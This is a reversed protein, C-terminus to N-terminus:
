KGDEKGGEGEAPRAVALVWHHFLRRALAQIEEATVAEIKEAYNRKFDHGLGLLEDLSDSRAQEQNTQNYVEQVTIAIRKATELEEPTVLDTKLREMERHLIAIVQDEKDVPCQTVIYFTGAGVGMWPTAHVTYVLKERGRLADHLWGGPYYVGSTVADIVRLAWQDESEISVGPFGLVIAAQTKQNTKVKTVNEAPAEHRPIPPRIVERPPFADPGLLAEVKARAAAHDCDGYIGLVLNGPVIWREHADLLDQRGLREVVEKTGNPHLRYPHGAFYNARFLLEVEGQWDEEMRDIAQVALKRERALEQEPFTPHLLCDALVELAQTVDRDLVEISIRLYPNGALGSIEGGRSEITEAIEEASRSATGALLMKALLNSVGNTGEDEYLVGGKFYAEIAVFKKGPNKRSLLTLGNALITKEVPQAPEARAAVGGEPLPTEGKPRLLAVTLNREDFYAAAIRSIEEPTVAQIREVYDEDFHPDGTGAVSWGISEAQDQVAAHRAHYEAVKQNKAKDLEAPTVGEKAIRALEELVARVFRRTEAYPCVSRVVFQGAGYHPTNSSSEVGFTIGMERVLRRHLRSSEGQTLVFSLLDLAYLDPHTLGVTHFGMSVYAAQVPFEKEAWRMAAQPPEEPLAIEELRGRPWSSLAAEVKGHFANADVDGVAVLVTNNPVYRAQYFRVLDDRTIKQFVERYGITPHREFHVRFMNAALFNALSREPEDERMNMEKEIVGKEREVERPELAAHAIWDCLLDLATDAYRSATTIYYATLSKTTYANSIGGISAVLRQSEEESRRATTGGSCLHEYYHSIGAGLFEGEYISGTKVFIWISVVPASHDEKVAIELGSPLTRRDIPARSVAGEDGFAPALLSLLLAALSFALPGRM